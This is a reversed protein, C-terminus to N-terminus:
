EFFNISTIVWEIRDDGKDGGVEERTAINIGLESCEKGEDLFTSDPFSLGLKGLQEEIENRTTNDHLEIGSYRLSGHLFEIDQLKDDVFRLRILTGGDTTEFDDEDIMHSNLAAFRPRLASRLTSRAMGFFIEVEDQCIGQRPILEWSSNSM